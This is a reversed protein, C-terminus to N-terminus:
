AGGKGVIAPPRAATEIQLRDLGLERAARLAALRSDREILFAPHQKPVGYRDAVILGEKDLIARAQAMRHWSEVLATLRVTDIEAFEFELLIRRWIRKAETCLRKPPQPIQTKAM